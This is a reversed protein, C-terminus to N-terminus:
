PYALAHRARCYTRKEGRDTHNLFARPSALYPCAIRGGGMLIDGMLARNEGIWSRPRASGLRMMTAGIHWYEASSPAALSQCKVCIFVIASDPAANNQM